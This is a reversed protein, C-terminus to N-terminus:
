TVRACKGIVDNNEKPRGDTSGNCELESDDIAALREFAGDYCDRCDEISDRSLDNVASFM